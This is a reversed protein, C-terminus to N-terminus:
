FSWGVNLYLIPLWRSAEAHASVGEGSADASASAHGIGVQAALTFGVDAIWKYGVFPGVLVVGGFATVSRDVKRSVHVYILEAGLTLSDFAQLPYYVVKGGIEQAALSTTAESSPLGFLTAFEHPVNGIGGLLTVGLQDVPRVEVEAQFVPLLLHLPSFLVSVSRVLPANAPIPSARAMGPPAPPPYYYAPTPTPYPAYGPPPTPFPAYGQPPAPAPARYPWPQASQPPVSRTPPPADAPAPSPFAATSSADAFAGGAFTMASALTVLTLARAGVVSSM